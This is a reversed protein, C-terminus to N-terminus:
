SQTFKLLVTNGHGGSLLAERVSGVGRAYWKHELVNPELPTTNATTVVNDYSGFPVTVKADNGTIKAEDEAQGHFLEERYSEGPQPNAPMVIGPEAGKVGAEWSGATTAVKGHKYEKTDEGMYWVNGEQDQAYWDFTDEIPEGKQSVVDHVVQAEVGNAIAKTRDLATVDVRQTEGNEVERYVWHSGPQFPLYPNDINTTFESPDISVHESGQPLAITSATATNSSGTSAATTSQTSASSGSDDSGCGGAILAVGAAGTALAVMSKRAKTM